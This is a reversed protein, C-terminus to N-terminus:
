HNSHLLVFVQTKTASTKNTSDSKAENNNPASKSRTFQKKRQMEAIFNSTTSALSTSSVPPMKAHQVEAKKVPVVANKHKITEKFKKIKETVNM